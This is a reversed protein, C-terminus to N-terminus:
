HPQWVPGPQATTVPRASPHPNTVHPPFHRFPKLSLPRPQVISHLSTLRLGTKSSCGLPRASPRPHPPFYLIIIRMTRSLAVRALIALRHKGAGEGCGRRPSRGQSHFPIIDERWESIASAEPAHSPHKTTPLAQWWGGEWSGRPVLCETKQTKSETPLALPTLPHHHLLCFM